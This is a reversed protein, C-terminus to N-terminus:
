SGASGRASTPPTRWGTSAPLGIMTHLGGSMLGRGPRAAPVIAQIKRDVESDFPDGLKLEIRSQLADKTGSRIESWKAAAIWVHIGFGLGGNALAQIQPELAEFETKMTAWGDIVLFVDTPFRDPVISGDRRGQRYTTMSDVGLEAFQLERSSRLSTIEAVTRRVRDVDLRGTVSGVHALNRMSTLSGGGFDLCYFGVEQPTHTLSLGAIGARLAMSKGSQPGGVVGLNGGSGDFRIWWPDRRQQRPRDILGFPAALAGRFAPDSAQLGRGEVEALGGLLKDMTPPEDLPPLWVKHSPWGHGKLRGVAISLLTEDEEERDDDEKVEVVEASRAPM